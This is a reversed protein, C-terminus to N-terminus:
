GGLKGFQAEFGARDGVALYRAQEVWKDRTIRGKFAGMRTDVAAIDAETWDAIQAYRTIGLAHLQAAAKPGLGKLATLDDALGAPIDPHIDIGVLPGVVDQVATAAGDAVGHSHSHANAPPQVAARREQEVPKPKSAAKIIFAIAIVAILAIVIIISIDM